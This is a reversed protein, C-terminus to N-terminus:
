APCPSSPAAAVASQFIRLVEEQDRGVPSAAHGIVAVTQAIM